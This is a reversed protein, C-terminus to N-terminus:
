HRTPPYRHALKSELVCSPWLFWGVLATAHRSYRWVGSLQSQLRSHHELTQSMPVLHGLPLQGTTRSALGVPTSRAGMRHGAPRCKSHWSLPPTVRPYSRLAPQVCLM